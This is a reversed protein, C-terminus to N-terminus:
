VLGWGFSLLRWVLKAVMGAIVWGVGMIITLLLYGALLDAFDKKPKQESM